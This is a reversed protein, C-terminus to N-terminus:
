KEEEEEWYKEAIHFEYIVVLIFVIVFIVALRLIM